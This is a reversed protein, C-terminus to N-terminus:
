GFPAVGILKAHLFMAFGAWAALGAVVVMADRSIVGEPYQTGAARDRKRSTIFDVIAWVLFAGFLVVDALMGNAILHALAWAKVGLIMPHGFKSKIHTGPVYAAIILIFAPLTLLAALHRTWIPPEWLSVPVTRALDYGWIILVFGVLSVVAIVGMWAKEGMRAIQGTRWDDAFIRVSHAALFLILGFILFTM